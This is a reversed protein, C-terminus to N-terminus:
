YYCKVQKIAAEEAQKASCTKNPIEALRPLRLYAAHRYRDRTKRLWKRSSQLRYSSTMQNSNGREKISQKGKSVSRRNTQKKKSTHLL